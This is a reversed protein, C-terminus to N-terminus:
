NGLGLHQEIRELRNRLDMFTRTLNKLCYDVDIEEATKTLAERYPDSINRATLSTIQNAGVFLNKTRLASTGTSGGNVVVDGGRHNLNLTSPVAGAAKAQLENTTLLTYLTQAENIVQFIGGNELSWRNTDNYVVFRSHATRIILPIKPYAATGNNIEAGITTPGLNLKQNAAITLGGNFVKPGTISEAAAKSLSVKDNVATVLMGDAIQLNKITESLSDTDKITHKHNGAAAQTPGKGLTHYPSDWSSDTNGLIENSSSSM